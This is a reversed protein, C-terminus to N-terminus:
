IGLIYFADNSKFNEQAWLDIENIAIQTEKSFEKAKELAINWENFSVRTPAYKDYNEIAFKFIKYLELKQFDDDSLYISDDSWFTKEDWEGKQFEHYCSGQRQSNKIIYEM